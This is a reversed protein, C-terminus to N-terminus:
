GLTSQGQVGPRRRAADRPEIKLPLSTPLPSSSSFHCQTANCPLPTCSSALECIHYRCIHLSLSVSLFLSLSPSLSNSVQLVFFECPSEDWAMMEAPSELVGSQQVELIDVDLEGDSDQHMADDLALLGVASVTAIKDSGGRLSVRTPSASASAATATAIAATSPGRGGSNKEAAGAGVGAGAGANGAAPTGAPGAHEAVLAPNLFQPLIFHRVTALSEAQTQASKSMAKHAGASGARAGAQMAVLSANLASAQTPASYRKSRFIACLAEPVDLMSVVQADRDPRQCRWWVLWELMTQLELRVTDPGSLGTPPSNVSHEASHEAFPPEASTASTAPFFSSSSSSFLGDGSSGSSGSNHCAARGPAVLHARKTGRHKRLVHVLPTHVFVTLCRADQMSDIHPVASRLFSHVSDEVSARFSVRVFHGSREVKCGTAEASGLQGSGLSAWSAPGPPARLADLNSGRGGRTGGSVRAVGSGHQQQPGPRMPTARGQLHTVDAARELLEV